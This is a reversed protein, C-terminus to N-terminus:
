FVDWLESGGEGGPSAHRREVRRARDRASRWASGGAFPLPAMDRRELLEDQPRNQDVVTAALTRTFSVTSGALRTLFLEAETVLALVELQRQELPVHSPYGSLLITLTARRARNSVIMTGYLAGVKRPRTTKHYIFGTEGGDQAEWGPLGLERAHLPGWLPTRMERPVSADFRYLYVGADHVDMRSRSAM